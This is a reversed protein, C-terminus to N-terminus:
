GARLAGLITPLAGVVYVMGAAAAAAAMTVRGTVKLGIALLVTVWIIFVDARMALGLTLPSATAPDLFRAPGVSLRSMGTLSEVPLVLGQIGYVLSQILKPFNAFTAVVMAAGLAQKAGVFKGAVWLILGTLLITTPTAVFVIIPLLREMTRAGGELAEATLQPNAELTAAIRRAGDAQYAPQIAGQTGLFVVTLLVTLVLLPLLFNSKERRAFVKSPAVFIELFDEWWAASAQPEPSSTIPM